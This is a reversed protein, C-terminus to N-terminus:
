GIKKFRNALWWPSSGRVRVAQSAYYIDDKIDTVIYLHGEIPPENSLFATRICKVVDGVELGDSHDFSKM